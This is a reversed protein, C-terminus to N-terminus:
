WVGLVDKSGMKMLHHPGWAALPIAGVAPVFVTEINDDKFHSVISETMKSLLSAFPLLPDINCYGSLHAGSIGKFHHGDEPLYVCGKDKLVQLAEQSTMYAM